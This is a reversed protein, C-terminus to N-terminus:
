QARLVSAPDFRSARHAPLWAAMATCTLLVLVVAAFHSPDRADVQHLFTQMFRSAWYTAGLGVALGAIVPALSQRVILWQVAGASGGIALRIGVERRRQAAEYASVAYLGVAALLIATVGFASFLVARFRQDGLSRRLDQQVDRVTVSSSSVGAERLRARVTSALLPTGAATRAAFQAIRFEKPSLPLYLSPMPTAAHAARVDSVVGVVTREPEGELRLRRGIADVPRVGPWVTQLGSESLVAVAADSTVEDASLSRGALMRMGLTSFFADTVQWRGTGPFHPALARMPLARSLPSIDIGGSATVDPLSKLAEVIRVSQQFRGAADLGRPFTVDVAYLGGPEFGLDTRSLTVLSRVTMVAGAVLMVTLAAEVALLSRSGRVRGSRASASGRQLLGLVDVRAIRWSPYAGAVVTCALGTLVSFMVVRPDTIPTAYRSFVAPLVSRLAADSWYVAVLAVSTAVLALLASEVLGARMLRGTSAGLAVQTAALHERSRNRVLMLSGLNACAIALVLAAAIAILWLFTTYRDFLVSRLPVLEYRSPPANSRAPLGRRVAESLIDLEAQAADLPVDRRLRVYPPAVRATPTPSALIPELVFGDSRPDLFNSAPIFRGPLVGVIEVPGAATWVHRGVVDYAAGFRAQWAGFSILALRRQRRDDDETFDRGRVVQVGFLELTNHSASTLRLPEGDDPERSLSFASSFGAFSLDVFGRHHRRAADVIPAPVTGFAQGDRGVERLVVIEDPREFPLQRFLVRDVATFVAVNVGIGLAFTLIAGATFWPSRALSRMACQLDFRVGDTFRAVRLSTGARCAHWSMWLVGRNGAEATEQLDETVAARWDSPVIRLAARTLWGNM